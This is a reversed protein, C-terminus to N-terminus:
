HGDPSGDLEQLAARAIEAVQANSDGALRGLSELSCQLGRVEDPDTLAKLAQLALIPQDM